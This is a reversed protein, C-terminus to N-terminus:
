GSGLWSTDDEARVAPPGLDGVVVGERIDAAAGLGHGFVHHFSTLLRTADDEGVVATEGALVEGGGGGLHDQGM